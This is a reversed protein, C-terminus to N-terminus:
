FYIKEITKKLTLRKIKGKYHAFRLGVVAMLFYFTNSWFFSLAGLCLPVILWNHWGGIVLAGFFLVWGFISFNFYLPKINFIYIPNEHEKTVEVVGGLFPNTLYNGSKMRNKTQHIFEKAEDSHDTEISFLVM